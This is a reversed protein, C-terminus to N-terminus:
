IKEGERIDILVGGFNITTGSPLHVVTSALELDGEANELLGAYNDLYSVDMMVERRSLGNGFGPRRYFSMPSRADRRMLTSWMKLESAVERAQSENLIEAM